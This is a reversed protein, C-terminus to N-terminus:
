IQVRCKTPAIDLPSVWSPATPDLTKTHPIIAPAEPSAAHSTPCSLFSLLSQRPAKPSPAPSSPPALVPPYLPCPPPNPTAQLLSTRVPPNRQPHSPQLQLQHKWGQPPRCSALHGVTQDWCSVPGCSDLTGGKSQGSEAKTAM